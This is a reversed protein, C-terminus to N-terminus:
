GRRSSRSLVRLVTSEISSELALRRRAVLRGRALNSCRGALVRRNWVCFTVQAELPNNKKPTRLITGRMRAVRGTGALPQTAFFREDGYKFLTVKVIPQDPHEAVVATM